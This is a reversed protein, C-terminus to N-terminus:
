PKALPFSRISTPKATVPHQRGQTLEKVRDTIYGDLHHLYIAGDTKAAKGSLGEVLAVTFYSHQHENSELSSERGTSSCLVVLGSEEAMLDRVLGETLDRASKKKPTDIGGAHCADLVLMVRGPLAVLMKKVQEAPVASSAIDKSDTDVPLFYLNGDTDKDGHGSFFVIGVDRQTIEQRLWGLGKLVGARTADKDTLQKIEISRYLPKCHKRFADAVAEADKAAYNLRLSADNYGSVGIALVYLRPLEADAQGGGIYRVEIEESVGQSLASDALLKLTHRGPDLTVPWSTEVRGLRVEAPRFVGNAGQLPRGDVLLRLEKVPHAGTSEAEARVEIRDTKAELKHAPALFRVKPPLAQAIPVKATVTEGRWLLALLGPRYYQKRLQDISLFTNTGALRYSVLKQGNVSGDFLGDPTLVLWGDGADLSLLSCLERGTSSNWLRTTGDGSGTLVQKGDPRFAVSIIWSTHGQFTRLKQGSAADWLIATNDGSGSLVQKGDPSFAATIWSAHGQFARLKQGSASDWVIATKDASGTLVQKGDPSFAVSMIGGTHGQFARLKQGTAADWLLAINDFSGTLVQKGDPSFAVSTIGDSAQFPRLKQGNAADWLIATKDTSGTLVQKSDPSFAVSRILNSHGQFTRLKQGNAADWLIATKDWSGTVVQKGDPSFAVSTIRSTHGQFAHLKQGSAADWLIATKDRSGTLVQKGDPSFAVSFLESTHRQFARLKQGSAADWLIATNDGSGTLVQKGDPSFAVSTIRGTRGELTHLKQGRPTGLPNSADQVAIAADWLIATNDWSGTLVQKGDPSFAASSLESTHGKFARLKRGSAADWLIATKDGSATLVQKGDPSFAVSTIWSTHGQFTRLKQGSAADWLIATKDWSGTLVQKGDPSFAASSLESTHGQYARLKQGSAADWLIATKDGSGTLVQKGDSSFVVSSVPSTHGKFDRLKQASAADWVIATTDGSGTLVQKGDPSFAVSTILRTHGQFTRLRQGSAVDWMIALQDESGTLVQKGDSSFAVSRVSGIHGDQVVLELAPEAAKLPGCQGLFVLVTLWGTGAFPHNWRM